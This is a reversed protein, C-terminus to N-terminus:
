ILKIIVDNMVYFANETLKFGSVTNQIFGNSRLFELEMKKAGVWDGGYLENLKNVSVGCETRLGLMLYEEYADQKTVFDGKEDRDGSIYLSIDSTNYLRKGGTFSHAAAGVGIYPSLNWYKINHKCEYGTVAFNSVEYRIFGRSKILEYVKTYIDACEDDNPAYGTNYLPTGNEVSLAYVSIHKIGENILRDASNLVDDAGSNPLGLILDCSVSDFKKVARKAADLATIRDHRRGVAKLVNDNLSQVGLSIRNIKCDAAESIFDDSFSDPNAETSIECNEDIDACDYIAKFIRSLEGQPLVSPTGGGIYVSDIKKGVVRETIEKILANVYSFFKDTDTCSTFGCYSCRSRCFPIHIYLGCKKASNQTNQQIIDRM